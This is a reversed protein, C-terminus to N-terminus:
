DRRYHPHYTSITERLYQHSLHTYIETTNIKEHGLMEQVARLDAGNTVLETAFSHRLSHPSIKKNIGAKKVAEKLFMFVYNRSLHTGLRNIFVYKEEGPRLRQHSRITAIYLMTLHLATHNIPVWRQKDGKGTVLLCEDDPYINSLHLNVLESVRLGCGYLVEVIVRNRAQDPQSLDFTAIIADVEDNTLVDPLHRATRPMELLTAPNEAVADEVVMMRYFTRLGSVIRSQTALAIGLDSMQAVLQRLDDLGIQEPGKGREAAFLALHSVDRLYAEISNDSLQKELKLYTRLANLARRWRPDTISQVLNM